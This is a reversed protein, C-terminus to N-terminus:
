AHHYHGHAVVVGLREAGGPGFRVPDFAERLLGCLLAVLVIQWANLVSAAVLIPLLYLFGVTADPLQSDAWAIIATLVGAIACVTVRRSESYEM